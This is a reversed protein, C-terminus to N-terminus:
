FSQSFNFIKAYAICQKVGFTNTERSRIIPQDVHSFRRTEIQVNEFGM